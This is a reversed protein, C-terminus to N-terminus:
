KEYISGSEFIEKLIPAREENLKAYMKLTNMEFLDKQYGDKYHIVRGYAVVQAKFVTSSRSLDVLDVERKLKSALEQAAMFVEYEDHTQNQSLFAIDIDSDDHFSETIVSGFIAIYIPDFKKELLEIISEEM